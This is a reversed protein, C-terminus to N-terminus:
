KPLNNFQNYRIIKASMNKETTIASECDGLSPFAFLQDSCEINSAFLSQGFMLQNTKVGILDLITPMIDLHTGKDKYTTGSTENPLKIFLPVEKSQVTDPNYAITGANFTPLVPTHDGYVLILSDDYLDAFKLKAFFEGLMRDVYNINELYGGVQDPYNSINLGLNKTLDTIEFPVHSSLTIINSFSPKPQDIVYEATKSLFDGDNLGMNINVGKPYNDAAYFKQYGLSNFAVDRNWFGRVFGHYTYASYGSSVLNKPLSTFDDLGYRVFIAANDLPFYSTNAVFDTDSTHGAGIIFHNNPFFQSTQSLLNLNPTIQEGNISQNIVFGGLSEVQIMIVNKGSAIGTLNDTTQTPKNDKIWNSLDSIQSPSLSTTEERIFRITDIAHAVLIGYYQSTSVTDYSKNFVDQLTNIGSSLISLCFAVITVAAALWTAKISLKKFDYKEKVKKVLIAMPKLLFLALVIDIFYLFYNWHLLGWIAPGVDKAEDLANLLGVTPISSFYSYYVTDALLLVSILSALIIAVINKHKRVFYLPLFIVAASFFSCIIGFTYQNSWTVKTVYTSFFYLKISLALIFFLVLYQDCVFALIKKTCCAFISKVM